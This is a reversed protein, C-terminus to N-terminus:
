YSRERTQDTSWDRWASSSSLSSTNWTGSHKWEPSNWDEDRIKLTKQKKTEELKERAKLNKLQDEVTVRSPWRVFLSLLLSTGLCIQQGYGSIKTGSSLSEDLNASM